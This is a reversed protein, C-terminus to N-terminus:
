ARGSPHDPPVVRGRQLGNQGRGVEGRGASIPPDVASPHAERREVEGAGLLKPGARLGGYVGSYASVVALRGIAVELEVGVSPRDPSRADAVRHVTIDFTEGQAM